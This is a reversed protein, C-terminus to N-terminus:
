VVRIVSPNLNWWPIQYLTNPPKPFWQMCDRDDRRTMLWHGGHAAFFPNTGLDFSYRVTSWQNPNGWGCRYKGFFLMHRDDSNLLHKLPIVMNPASYDGTCGLLLCKGLGQRHGKWHGGNWLGVRPAIGHFGRFASSGPLLLGIDMYHFRRCIDIYMYMNYMHAKELWKWHLSECTAVQICTVDLSLVVLPDCNTAFCHRRHASPSKPGPPWVVM